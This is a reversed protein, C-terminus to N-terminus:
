RVVEWTTTATAHASGDPSTTTVQLKYSGDVRGTAPLHLRLRVTGPHTVQLATTSLVAVPPGSTLKTLKRHRKDKRKAPATSATLTATRTLTAQVTGIGNLTVPVSLTWGESRLRRRGINRADPLVIAPAQACTQTSSPQRTYQVGPSPASAWPIETNVAVVTFTVQQCIPAATLPLATTAGTTLVTSPSASGVAMLLEYGQADPSQSTFGLVGNVPDITVNSPSEDQHQEGAVGTPNGDGGDSSVLKHADFIPAPTFAIIAGGQGGPGQTTGYSGGDGGASTLSALTGMANAAILVQGGTGGSGGLGKSVPNGSGTGGAASAYGGITLTGTFAYLTLSGGNGGSWPPSSSGGADSGSSDASGGISLNNKASLLISGGGVGPGSATRGGNSAVRGTSISGGSSTVSVSGGAGGVTGSTDAGDALLSGLLAGSPATVTIKGGAGGPQGAASGYGGSADLDAATVTSGSLAIQGGPASAGGSADLDGGITLPGTATLSVSAGGSGSSGISQGYANIPGLANLAAGATITVSGSSGPSGGQNGGAGYTDIEETQVNNAGISVSGGNGGSPFNSNGYGGEASIKGEVRVDGGSSNIAVSGANTAATAPTQGNPSSANAGQTQLEGSVDIAGSAKLTVGAGPAYIQGTELTGGSTISVQGSSGGTSGSTDIDGLAVPNGSITLNGGPQGNANKAPNLDINNSIVIPGSSQLSLSRGATCQGDGSGPVYCTSIQADPGLYISNASITTDGTLRLIGDIYVYDYGSISGGSAVYTDGNLIILDDAQATAAFASAVGGAACLAALLRAARRVTPTRDLRM